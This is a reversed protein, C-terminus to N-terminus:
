STIVKRCYNGMTKTVIFLVKQHSINVLVHIVYTGDSKWGNNLSFIDFKRVNGPNKECKKLFTQITAFSVIHKPPDIKFLDRLTPFDELPIETLEM